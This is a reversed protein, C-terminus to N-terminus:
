RRLRRALGGLGALAMGLLAVTAGGDPVTTSNASGFIVAVPHEDIYPVLGTLDFGNANLLTLDLQITDRVNPSGPPTINDSVAGYNLGDSNGSSNDFRTPADSSLTSAEANYSLAAHDLSGGTGDNAYGWQQNATTLNWPNPSQTGIPTISGATITVGSPLNFAVGSIMSSALAAPDAAGALSINQLTISLTTGSVSMDVNAMLQSPDGASTQYLTEDYSIAVARSTSVVALFGAGCALIAAIRKIERKM